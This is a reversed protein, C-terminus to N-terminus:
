DAELARLRRQAEAARDPAGNARCADVLAQWIRSDTPNRRAAENLHVEAQQPRGLAMLLSGVEFRTNGSNGNIEIARELAEIAPRKEGRGELTRAIRIWARGDAPPLESARRYADLAVEPKGCRRAADGLHIQLEIDEPLAESALRLLQLGRDCEGTASWLRGLYGLLTPNTPDLPLLAELEQALARTTESRGQRLTAEVKQIPELLAIMDKPDHGSAPPAQASGLYGLRNLKDFLDAEVSENVASALDPGSEISLVRRLAAVREKESAARNQLEGPDERLDYLELRPAEILKDSATRLGRLDSWGMVLRPALSELYAASPLEEEGRIAPALSRGQMTEPVSRGLLDLVTPAIDITRAVGNGLVRGTPLGPGALILPVRMTSDYIFFVHAEEGHEGLGEGHDATVIVLTRELEGRKELWALLRGIQADAYAIEADYPDEFRKAIEDPARRPLHPDFLHVWAFFPKADATARWRQFATVTEEAPRELESGLGDDYVSFGRDLGFARTIVFASVFAGSAYGTPTLREGLTPLRGDLVHVGNLRVGHTTPYTGTLISAHSPLTIPVATFAADFRVGRAALRDLHPTAGSPSGYCGLRDARLTDITILLVNPPPEEKSCSSLGLLLWGFISWTRVFKM